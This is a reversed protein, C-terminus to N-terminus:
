RTPAESRSGWRAVAELLVQPRVPKAVYDNMGCNIAIERDDVLANATLAIIPVDCRPAPLERIARTAAFGDMVPMQCDMLVVDFEAEQLKRLAERDDGAVTVVHGVQRLIACAVKQNVPNDEVLLLKLSRPASDPVSPRASELRAITRRDAAAVLAAQLQADRCPKTLWGSFGAAKAQAIENLAGLSSFLLLEPAATGCAEGMRRALEIGDMGPMHYDILAVRFRPSDPANLLELAAAGSAVTTPRCGWAALRHELIRRNNENDDVVLIRSDRLVAQDRAPLPKSAAVVKCPLEFSFTSGVGERSEVAITGGMLEVLQKSIALGLGTGGFQRTTSADVQMFPKFLRDIRDSPIGIGSDRCAFRLMCRGDELPRARLSIEVDGGPRTFKCANGVLNVLVQRIRNPDGLVRTPLDASTDALLEVGGEVAKSTVIDLVESIVGQPDFEVAEFEIRGAEIKSLDLIGNLRDLLAESCTRVTRAFEIQEPDLKTDLLLGTMGIIGNMPTRIEHSMNALFHSKSKAADEADRRAKDLLEMAPHSASIDRTVLITFSTDDVVCETRAIELDLRSGDLAGAALGVRFLGNKRQERRPHLELFEDLVQLAPEFQGARYLSEGVLASKPFREIIDVFFPLADTFRQQQFRAWGSKYLAADAVPSDDGSAKAYHTLAGDFDGKAYAQEGLEFAAQAALPGGGRGNAVSTLLVNSETVDGAAQLSLARQYVLRDRGAAKALRKLADGLLEAAGRSDDGEELTLAAVLAVEVAREDQPFETQLANWHRAADGHRDLKFACWGARSLARPRLTAEGATAAVPEFAALAEQWQQQAFLAEGLVLNTGAGHRGSGFRKM